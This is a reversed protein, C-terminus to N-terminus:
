LITKLPELLLQIDLVRTHHGLGCVTTKYDSVYDVSYLTFINYEEILLDINRYLNYMKDSAFPFENYM